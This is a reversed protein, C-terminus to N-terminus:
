NLGYALVRTSGGSTNRAVVCNFGINYNTYATWTGLTPLDAGSWYLYNFGTYSATSDNCGGGTSCTFKTRGYYKNGGTDTVWPTCYTAVTTNGDGYNLYEDSVVDGNSGLMIPCSVTHDTSFNNNWAGNEDMHIDTSSSLDHCAAGSGGISQAFAASGALTSCMVAAVIYREM